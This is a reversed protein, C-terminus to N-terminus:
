FTYDLLVTYTHYCSTYTIHDYIPSLVLSEWLLNILSKNDDLSLSYYYM